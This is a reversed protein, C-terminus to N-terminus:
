LFYVKNSVYFHLSDDKLIINNIYDNILIYDNNNINYLKNLSNKTIIYVNNLEYYNNIVKYFSKNKIEGKISNNKNGLYCIDTNDPINYLCEELFDLDDSLFSKEDLILYKDYKKDKELKQYIEIQMWAIKIDENTMIHQQDYYLTRFKHYLLKINKDESDYIKFDDVYYLIEYDFGLRSIKKILNNLNGLYKNNSKIIIKLKLDITSSVNYFIVNDCINKFFLKRDKQYFNYKPMYCLEVKNSLFGACWCLTSMSCVLIKANKMIHFDTIVDNSEINIIINKSHFWNLCKNLFIHDEDSNPNQIVICNKKNSFDITNFLDELYKYEIFDDRGHFDGLRIHIVIDYIKTSDLLDNKVLDNLLFKVHNDSLERNYTATKIYHNDKNKNIFNIISDKNNYFVDNFQFYDNMILYQYHNDIHNLCLHFNDDDINLINKVYIGHNNNSNIYDNSSLNHIDINKKFYGLTNFGSINKNNNSIEFLKDINENLYYIDNGVYDLGKYFTYSDMSKIDDELIFEYNYKICFLASAFYRFLANGLRGSSKFVVYKKYPESNSYYNFLYFWPDYKEKKILKGSETYNDIYPNILNFLHVNELIISYIIQQDCGIFKNNILYEDMKKYFLEYFILINEVSSGFISASICIEDQFFNNTNNTNNFLNPNITIIDIKKNSINEYIPYNQLFNIYEDNRVNGIDNWIFKDSNFPNLEIASKLFDLKSNWLIYCYKTRIDKQNDISHQYDWIDYYKKYIPLDEFNQIIIYINANNYKKFFDVLDNSTFIIINCKINKLFNDIWNYYKDHTHKSPLKYYCSVVTANSM